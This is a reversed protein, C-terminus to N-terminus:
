VDSIRRCLLNVTNRCSLKAAGKGDEADSAASSESSLYGGTLIGAASENSRAQVKVKGM